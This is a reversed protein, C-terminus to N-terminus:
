RCILYFSQTDPYDRLFPKLRGKTWIGLGSKKQLLFTNVIGENDDIDLAILEKEDNKIINFPRGEATGLELSARTLFKITKDEIKIAIKDTGKLVEGKVGDKEYSSNKSSSMETFVLSECGLNTQGKILDDMIYPFDTTYQTKIPKLYYVLGCLLLTLLFWKIHPMIKKM